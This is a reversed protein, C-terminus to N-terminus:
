LRPMFSSRSAPPTFVVIRSSRMCRAGANRNGLARSARSNPRQSCSRKSSMLSAASCVVFDPRGAILMREDLPEDLDLFRIRDLPTGLLERLEGTTSARRRCTDLLLELMRDTVANLADFRDQRVIVPRLPRWTTNYTAVGAFVTPWGATGAALMDDRVDAPLEEWADLGNGWTM